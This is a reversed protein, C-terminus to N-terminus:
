SKACRLTAPNHVLRRPASQKCLTQGVKRMTSAMDRILSPSGHKIWEKTPAWEMPFTETMTPVNAASQESSARGGADATLDVIGPERTARPPAPEAPLAATPPQAVAQAAPTVLDQAAPAARRIATVPLVPRNVPIPVRQQPMRQRVGNTDLLQPGRANAVMVTSEEEDEGLDLFPEHEWGFGGCTNAVRVTGHGESEVDLGMGDYPSEFGSRYTWHVKDHGSPPETCERQFHGIKGCNYCERARGDNRGRGRGRGRNGSGRGRGERSDPRPSPTSSGTPKNDTPALVASSDVKQAESEALRVTDGQKEKNSTKYDSMAWIGDELEIAVKVAREFTDAGRTQLGQQLPAHLAKMFKHIKIKEDYQHAEEFLERARSALSAVEEDKGQTLNGLRELSEAPNVEGWREQFRRRLAEWNHLLSMGGNRRKYEEDEAHVWNKASDDMNAYMTVGMQGETMGPTSNRYMEMTKVFRRAKAGKEGKM